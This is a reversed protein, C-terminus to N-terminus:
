IDVLDRHKSPLLVLHRYNINKKSRSKIEVLEGTTIILSM